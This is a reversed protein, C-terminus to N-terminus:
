LSKEWLESERMEKYHDDIIRLTRKISEEIDDLMSDALDKNLNGNQLKRKIYSIGNKIRGLSGNTDHILGDVSQKVTSSM